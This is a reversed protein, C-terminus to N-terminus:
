KIPGKWDLGPTWFFVCLGFRKHLFFVKSKSAKTSLFNGNDKTMSTTRTKENNVKFM